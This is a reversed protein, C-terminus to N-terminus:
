SCLYTNKNGRLWGSNSPSATHALPKITENSESKNTLLNLYIKPITNYMSVSGPPQLLRPAPIKYKTKGKFM